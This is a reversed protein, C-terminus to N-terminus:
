AWESSQCFDYLIMIIHINSVYAFTFGLVSFMFSEFKNATLSITM